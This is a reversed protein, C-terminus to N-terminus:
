ACMNRRRRANTFVFGRARQEANLTATSLDNKWNAAQEAVFIHAMTGCADKGALSGRRHYYPQLITLHILSATIYCINFACVVSFGAAPQEYRPGCRPV